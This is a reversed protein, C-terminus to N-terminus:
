KWQETRQQTVISDKLNVSFNGNKNNNDDVNKM